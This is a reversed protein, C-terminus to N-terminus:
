RIPPSLMKKHPDYIEEEIDLGKMDAGKQKLKEYFLHHNISTDAFQVMAQHLEPCEVMIKEFQYSSSPENPNGYTENYAPCRKILNIVQKNAEEADAKCRLVQSRLLEESMRSEKDSLGTSNQSTSCGSLLLSVILWAGILGLITMNRKTPMKREKFLNM